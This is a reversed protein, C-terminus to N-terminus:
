ADLRQREVLEAFRGGLAILEDYTTPIAVGYQEFLANNVFWLVYEQGAYPFAYVNGDEAFMFQKETEYVKSLFGTKEAVDNIVMMQKSNRLTTVIGSGTQFIDPLDNIKAKALLTAGDDQAQPILELEVNPYAEALKEVAYDYPVKTDDDAYQGYIQLKIKEDAMASTCGIVLLAALLVCLFKKM